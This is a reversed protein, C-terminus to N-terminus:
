KNTAQLIQKAKCYKEKREIDKKTVIKLRNLNSNQKLDSLKVARAIPNTKIKNVYDLYDVTKDYTMLILAEKQIADLFDFDDITYLDSDELVDHLLAVTKFRAGKVGLAVNIPHWFYAKGAKDKQGKHAKLMIFFAKILNRM